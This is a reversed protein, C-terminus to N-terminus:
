DTEKWNLYDPCGKNGMENGLKCEAMYTEIDKYLCNFYLNRCTDCPKPTNM